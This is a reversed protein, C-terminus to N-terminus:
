RSATATTTVQINTVLDPPPTQHEQPASSDAITVTVSTTEGATVGSPLRTTDLSVIFEDNDTNGDDASTTITGSGTSDGAAVTVSGLTGIDGDGTTGASITLPFVMERPAPASLRATVTVPSGETVPNPAAELTVQATGADPSRGADTIHLQSYTALAPRLPYPMDGRMDGLLVFFYEDDADADPRATVTLTATTQNAPM